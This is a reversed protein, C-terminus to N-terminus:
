GERVRSRELPYPLVGGKTPSRPALSPSVSNPCAALGAVWARTVTNSHSRGLQLWYNGCVCPSQLGTMYGAPAKNRGWRVGGSELQGSEILMRGPTSRHYRVPQRKMVTCRGTTTWRPLVQAIHSTSRCQM